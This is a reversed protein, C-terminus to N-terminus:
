DALASHINKGNRKKEVALLIIGTVIAVGGAYLVWTMTKTQKVRFGFSNARILKEKEGYSFRGSLMMMIGVVILIVATSKLAKM